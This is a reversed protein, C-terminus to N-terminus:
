FRFEIAVSKDTLDIPIRKVKCTKRGPLWRGLCDVRQGSGNHLYIWESSAFASGAPMALFFIIRLASRPQEIGYVQPTDADASQISKLSSNM